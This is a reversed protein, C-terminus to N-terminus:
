AKLYYQASGFTDVTYKTDDAHFTVVCILYKNKGVILMSIIKVHTLESAQSSPDGIGDENIVGLTLAQSLTLPTVTLSIPSELRVGSTSTIRVPIVANLGETTTYVLDSLMFFIEPFSLIVYFTDYKM